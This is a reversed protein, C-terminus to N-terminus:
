PRKGRLGLAPEPLTSVGLLTLKGAVEFPSTGPAAYWVEGCRSPAGAIHGEGEIVVLLDPPHSFRITGAIQHRTVTFHECSVLAADIPAQVRASHPERRSVALSHDLHLERPRGYDYLRYTVDSFQQIECLTLGAGIAHVTGAPIFFTDGPRADHWALLDEIEGSLAAARLREESLPERFGAAIRAGPEAALVHWMETKGRSNHHKAAYADDPHVQVSLKGSTFLFKVLLPLDGSGEFWVEGIKAGTSQFFPELRESGWIREVFRPTLRVLPM